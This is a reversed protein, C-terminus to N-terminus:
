VAGGEKIHDLFAGADDAADSEGKHADYMAQLHSLAHLLKARTKDHEIAPNAQQNIGNVKCYEAIVARAYEFLYGDYEAPIAEPMHSIMQITTLDKLM